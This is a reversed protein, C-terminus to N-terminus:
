YEIENKMLSSWFQKKGICKKSKEVISPTDHQSHIGLIPKTKKEALNRCICQSYLISLGKKKTEDGSWLVSSKDKKITEFGTGRM